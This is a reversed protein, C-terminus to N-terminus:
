CHARGQGAQCAQGYITHMLVISRHAWGNNALIEEALGQHAQENTSCMRSVEGAPGGTAHRWEQHARGKGAQCAQGYITRMLVISCHAWGDTARIGQVQGRRAQEYADYM